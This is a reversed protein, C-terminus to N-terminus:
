TEKPPRPDPLRPQTKQAHPTRPENEYNTHMNTITLVKFSRFAHDQSHMSQAHNHIFPPAPQPQSHETAALSICFVRVKRANASQRATKGGHGTQFASRKSIRQVAPQLSALSHRPSRSPQFPRHPTAARSSKPAPPARRVAAIFTTPALSNGQPCSPEIHNNCPNVDFAPTARRCSTRQISNKM